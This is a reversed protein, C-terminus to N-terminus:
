EKQHIVKMSRYRQQENSVKILYTGSPEKLLDVTEEEQRSVLTARLRGLMDYVEITNQGKLGKIVVKNNESPNPYLSLGELSGFENIGTYCGDNSVCLSFEINGRISAGNGGAIMKTLRARMSCSTFCGATDYRKTAQNSDIKLVLNPRLLPYDPDEDDFYWSISSDAPFGNTPSSAYPYFYRYFHNLNFFRSTWHSTSINTFTLPAFCFVSDVPFVDVPYPAIHDAILTYTVIPSVCFEYDTTAGFNPNVYGKTSYWVQNFRLVGLGEGMNTQFGYEPNGLLKSATRYIRVTDGSILSLNRVCVAFNGPVNHSVPGLSNTFVGGVQHGTTSSTTTQAAGVFTSISDIITTPKLNADVNYLYLRVPIQTSNSNIQYALRAQLGNVILNPDTNLFVSGLHTINTVTAAASKYFPFGIGTANPIKFLQKNYFYSLTDTVVTPTTPPSLLQVTGASQGKTKPAPAQAHIFSHASFVLMGTVLLNKIM